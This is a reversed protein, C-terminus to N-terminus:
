MFISMCAQETSNSESVRHGNAQWAGRDMNNEWCSYQFPNGNVRDLSRRSGPVSGTDGTDGTSASPNKVSQAVLLM